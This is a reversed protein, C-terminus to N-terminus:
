LSINLRTLFFLVQELNQSYDELRFESGIQFKTKESLKWGYNLTFRSDYQPKEKSVSLLKEINCVVYPEGVDLKEGKMPFDLSLRYRFRHTNQLSTIRQESRLRHGYRIVRPKYQLNYQQTLRLENAGGDFNERFRYLVGFALSQNDKLQFNSFHVIDLQRVELNASENDYIYNRNQISFNHSYIGTVDYNVAISPQWYGTFNEQSFVSYIFIFAISTLVWKPNRTCCMTM